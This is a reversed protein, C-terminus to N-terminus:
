ACARCACARCAGTDFEALHATDGGCVGPSFAYMMARSQAGSTPTCLARLDAACSAKKVLPAPCTTMVGSSQGNWMQQWVFKSRALVAAYVVSMFQWYADSTSQLKAASYGIDQSLHAEYESPGDADWEDDFFFGSVIESSAGNKGFLYDEVFWAVLTQGNVSVNASNPNFLYEGSPIAGVDCAPSACNGDGSPFGPSQSQDHYLASCLPPDYNTDCVPVHCGALPDAASCNFPVFWAAYAPDVLKERVSTYWPLAKIGSSM